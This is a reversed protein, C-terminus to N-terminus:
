DDSRDRRSAGIALAIAVGLGAGIGIWAPNDAAAFLATGIGTGIAIGAGLTIAAANGARDEEDDGRATEDHETMSPSRLRRRSM